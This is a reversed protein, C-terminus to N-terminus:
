DGYNCSEVKRTVGRCIFWGFFRIEDKDEAIIDGLPIDSNVPLLQDLRRAHILDSGLAGAEHLSVAARANTRGAARRKEGPKVAAM